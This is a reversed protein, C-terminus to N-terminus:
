LNISAGVGIAAGPTTARGLNPHTMPGEDLVIRRSKIRARSLGRVVRVPGIPRVDSVHIGAVRVPDKVISKGTQRRAEAPVWSVYQELNRMRM